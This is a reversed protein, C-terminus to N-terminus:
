STMSSCAKGPGTCGLWSTRAIGPALNRTGIQSSPDLVNLACNAAM